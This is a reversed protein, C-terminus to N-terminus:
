FVVLSVPAAHGSYTLRSRFAVDRELRRVDWVKVTEDSSASAFYAGNQSVALRTIARCM